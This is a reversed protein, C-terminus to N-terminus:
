RLTLYLRFYVMLTDDTSKEVTDVCQVLPDWNKKTSLDKITSAPVITEDGDDSRSRKANSVTSNGDDDDLNRKGNAKKSQGAPANSMRSGSASQRGKSASPKTKERKGKSWYENILERAGSLSLIRPQWERLSPSACV